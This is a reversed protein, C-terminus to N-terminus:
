RTLRLMQEKGLREFNETAESRFNEDCAESYIKKRLLFIM